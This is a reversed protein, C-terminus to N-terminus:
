LFPWGVNFAVSMFYDVIMKQFITALLFLPIAFAALVLLYDLMGGEEDEHFRRVSQSLRRFIDEMRAKM